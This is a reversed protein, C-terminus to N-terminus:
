GPAKNRGEPEDQAFSPAQASRLRWPLGGGSNVGARHEQAVNWLPWCAPGSMSGNAAREMLGTGHRRGAGEGAETM